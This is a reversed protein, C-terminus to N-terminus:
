LIHATTYFYLICYLISTSIYVQIFIIISFSRSFSFLDLIDYDYSNQCGRPPEKELLFRVHPRSCASMCISLVPKPYLHIRVSPRYFVSLLKCFLQQFHHIFICKLLHMETFIQFLRVTNNEPYIEHRIMRVPCKLHAAALLFFVRMTPLYTDALIM